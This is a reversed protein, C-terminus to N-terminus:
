KANNGAKKGAGVAKENFAQKCMNTYKVDSKVSQLIVVISGPVIGHGVKFGLAKRGGLGVACAVEMVAIMPDRFTGADFTQRTEMVALAAPEVPGSGSGKPKAARKGAKARPKPQTQSAQAARKNAAKNNKTM